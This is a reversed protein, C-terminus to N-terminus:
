RGTAKFLYGLGRISHIEVAAGSDALKKRLRSVHSDLANSQIEDDYGYVADELASRLVTRGARRMFMELVLMERRSLAIITDGIRAEKHELDLCVNGEEITRSEYNESRRVIARLRAVLEDALFPKGLYDDAGDNLGLVRDTAANRATLVIVPTTNGADRMERLFTLGDGDPLHRDLIVADHVKSRIAERADEITQIHDVVYRHQVLIVLLARAM